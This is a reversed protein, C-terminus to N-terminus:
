LLVAIATAVSDTHSVSVHARREGLLAKAKGYLVAYPAGRADHRVEIDTWPFAIGSGLAKSVAEKVCFMGALTQMSSGHATFYEREYATYVRQLFREKQAARAIRSVEIVDIGVM